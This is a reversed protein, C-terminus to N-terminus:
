KRFIKKQKKTCAEDYMDTEKPCDIEAREVHLFSDPNTKGLAYAEERSVVDYPLSAVRSAKESTPRLAQFGRFVAM